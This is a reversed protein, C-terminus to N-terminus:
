RELLVKLTRRQPRSGQTQLVAFYIGSSQAKLGLNWLIRDPHGGNDALMVQEGALNYFQATVKLQPDVQGLFIVVYKDSPSAPNPAVWAAALPNVDPVILVQVMQTVILTSSGPQVAEVKVFYFGASVFHGQANRGDWSMWTGGGKRLISLESQPGALGGLLLQGSSFSLESIQPITGTPTQLQRVLEGASNYISTQLTIPQRLVNINASYTTVKGYPDIIEAMAVYVGSQVMQGSNNTGNWNLNIGSTGLLTLTATAGAQDPVLVGSSSQLGYPRQYTAFKSLISAVLEGASNYINLTIQINPIYPTFTM